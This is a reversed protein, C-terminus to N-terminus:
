RGRGGRYKQAISPVHQPVFILSGVSSVFGVLPAVAVQISVKSYESIKKICLRRTIKAM